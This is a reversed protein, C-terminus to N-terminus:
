LQKGDWGKLVAAVGGGRGKCFKLSLSYYNGEIKRPFM